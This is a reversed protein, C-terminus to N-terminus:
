SETASTGLSLMSDIQIDPYGSVTGRHFTFSFATALVATKRIGRM